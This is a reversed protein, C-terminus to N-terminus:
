SPNALLEESDTWAVKGTAIERALDLLLHCPMGTKTPSCVCCVDDDRESGLREYTYHHVELMDGHRVAGCAACQYGHARKCRSRMAQKDPTDTDYEESHMHTRVEDWKKLKGILSEEPTSCQRNTFRHLGGDEYTKKDLPDVICRFKNPDIARFELDLRAIIDRAAEDSHLFEHRSWKMEGDVVMREQIQRINDALRRDFNAAGNCETM